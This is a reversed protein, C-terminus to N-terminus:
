PAGDGSLSDLAAYIHQRVIEAIRKPDTIPAVEPALKAPISLLATKAEIVKQSWLATVESVAVLEGTKQKWELEALQARHTERKAKAKALVTYADNQDTKPKRGAGERFGGHTSKPPTIPTDTM